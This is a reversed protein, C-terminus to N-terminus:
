INGKRSEIDEVIRCAIDISKPLTEVAGVYGSLPRRPVAGCPLQVSSNTGPLLSYTRRDQSSLRSIKNVALDTASLLRM